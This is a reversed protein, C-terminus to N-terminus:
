WIVHKFKNFEYVSNIYWNTHHKGYICCFFSQTRPLVKKIVKNVEDIIQLTLSGTTRQFIFM